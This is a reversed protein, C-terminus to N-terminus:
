PVAECLASGKLAKACLTALQEAAAAEAKLRDEAPLAAATLDRAAGAGPVGLAAALAQWVFGQVPDPEPQVELYVGALELMARGEGAEIRPQLDAALREALTARLDPTALDATRALLALAEGRGSLRARWAWYLTEAHNQPLGQGDFYLLALNFQAEPVGQEALDRYLRAAEAAQGQRLADYARALSAAPSAGAWGPLCLALLLCGALRTM